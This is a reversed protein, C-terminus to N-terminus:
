NRCQYEMETWSPSGEQYRGLWVSGGNRYSQGTVIEGIQGDHIRKITEITSKSHRNDLGVCVSLGKEKAKKGAELVRRVGVPDTAVPKEMFVHKGADIAAAFSIPRFGPPECLMVYDVDTELLKKYADFGTFCHDDKVEFNPVPGGRRKPNTLEKKCMELRDPFADALAILHVNPAATLANEAAGTGRGGCGILGIRIPDANKGWSKSIYPFGSMSTTAAAAAASKQIFGRRTIEERNGM